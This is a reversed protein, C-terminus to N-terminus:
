KLNAEPYARVSSVTQWKGTVVELGKRRERKVELEAYFLGDAKHNSKVIRHSRVAGYEAELQAWDAKSRQTLTVALSNLGELYLSSLADRSQVRAVQICGFPSVCVSVVVAFGIIWRKTGATMEIGRRGRFSM